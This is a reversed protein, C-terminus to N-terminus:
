RHWILHLISILVYRVEDCAGELRLELVELGGASNTLAGSVRGRTWADIDPALVVRDGEPGTAGWGLLWRRSRADVDSALM